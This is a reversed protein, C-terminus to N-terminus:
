ADGREWSWRPDNLRACYDVAEEEPGLFVSNRNKRQIVEYQEGGLRPYVYFDEQTGTFAPDYQVVRALAELQELTLDKRFSSSLEYLTVGVGKLIKKAKQRRLDLMVKEPTEIYKRYNSDSGREKGTEMDFETERPSGEESLSWVVTVYKRAVKTVLGRYGEPPPNRMAGPAFVRLEQGVEYKM